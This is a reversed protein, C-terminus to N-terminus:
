KALSKLYTAIATQCAGGNGVLSARISGIDVVQVSAAASHKDTPLDFQADPAHAFRVARVGIDRMVGSQAYTAAYGEEVGDAFRQWLASAEGSTMPPADPLRLPGYGDIDQRLGALIRRDTGIWPNAIVGIPQMSPTPGIFRVRQSGDPLTAVIERHSPEIVKLGCGDPLRDKPVTLDQM